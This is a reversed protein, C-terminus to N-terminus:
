RWRRHLWLWGHPRARIQEEYFRNCRETVARVDAELDGTREPLPLPAIRLRHHGVGERWQWAAFVPRGTRLAAAALGLSTRAGRGFFPLVPGRAFHQDQVFFVSRGAELAAYAAEMRAGTELARVDHAARLAAIRARAWPDAPTRLFIALPIADAWRLLALDWSGGHGGLLLSGPPVADAGEVDVRVRPLGLAEVYGLVIDHFMRVLTARVPVDPLARRLNDVAEARRVPLVWWWFWAVGWSFVDAVRLPVRALCALLADLAAARLRSALSM